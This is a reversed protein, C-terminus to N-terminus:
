AAFRPARGAPGFRAELDDYYNAPITLLRVGSERLAQACGVADRHHFRRAPPQGRDAGLWRTAAPGHEPEGTGPALPDACGLDPGSRFARHGRRDRGVGARACQPLVARDPRLRRDVGRPVRSRHRDAPGGRHPRAPRPTFDALWSGASSADCFFVATGDPAAVSQIDVEDPARLRPLKPAFLRSARDASAGPDSSEVALACVSATAPDISRHPARNLLLRAEGQQWLDVPKSRHQATRHLGTRALAEEVVPASVDDVALEVFAFGSLAPAPPLQVNFLTSPRAASPSTPGVLDTFPDCPACPGMAAYRPDEQQHVDNFVELAMPGAYGAELSAAFSGAVDLVGQGPIPATTCAGRGTPSTCGPLTLSSSTSCRPGRSRRWRASSDNNGAFSTSATSASASTRTTWPKAGAAVCPRADARAGVAGGRLRSTRRASAAREALRHLQAAAVDDDDLGDARRPRASSCSRPESTRWWM